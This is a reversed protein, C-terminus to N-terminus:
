KMTKLYGILAEIQQNSLKEFNPHNFKRWKEYLVLADKDGELVLRYGNQIMLFLWATSRNKAVGNLAPGFGDKDPAHCAACKLSFLSKGDVPLKQRLTSVLGSDRIQSQIKKGEQFVETYAIKKGSYYRITATEKKSNWSTKNPEYIKEKVLDGNPNYYKWIGAKFKHEYFEEYEPKGNDFNGYARGEPFANKWLKYNKITGDPHYTVDEGDIYESKETIKFTRKAFLNGNAYYETYVRCSCSPDYTILMQLKGEENYVKTSTFLNKKSQAYIQLWLCALCLILILRM